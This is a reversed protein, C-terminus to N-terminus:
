RRAVPGEDLSRLPVQTWGDGGGQGLPPQVTGAKEAVERNLPLLVVPDGPGLASSSGGAYQLFAKGSPNSHRPKQALETEAFM